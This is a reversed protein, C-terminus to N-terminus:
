KGEFKLVAKFFLMGQPVTFISPAYACYGANKKVSCRAGLVHRPLPGTLAAITM